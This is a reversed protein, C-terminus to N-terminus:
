LELPKQYMGSWYVWGWNALALVLVGTWFARREGTSGEFVVRRKFPLVVFLYSAVGWVLFILVLLAFPNYTVALEFRGLALATVARTGGCLPCAFGVYRLPSHVPPLWTVVYSLPIYIAAGIILALSYLEWVSPTRKEPRDIRIRVHTIIPSAVPIVLAHAGTIGEHRIDTVFAAHPRGLRLHGIRLLSVCGRQNTRRAATVTVRERRQNRAVLVAHEPVQQDAAAIGAARLFDRL